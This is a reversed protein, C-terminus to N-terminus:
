RASKFVKIIEELKDDIAAEDKAHLADRVCHEMHRGLIDAEVSKLASHVAKTQNLIDLCYRREEIMRRIGAVQGEIRNLRGVLKSHDPHAHDAMSIEKM